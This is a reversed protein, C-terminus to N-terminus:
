VGENPEKVEQTLCAVPFTAERVIGETGYEPVYLVDAVQICVMQFRNFEFDSVQVLDDIIEKRDNYVRAVTMRPGGSKLFVVSGATIPPTVPLHEGKLKYTGNEFFKWGVTHCPPFVKSGWVVEQTTVETLHTAVINYETGDRYVWVEGKEPRIKPM